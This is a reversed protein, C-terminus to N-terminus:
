VRHQGRRETRACRALFPLRTPADCAFPPPRISLSSAAGNPVESFIACGTHEVGPLDRMVDIGALVLAADLRADFPSAFGYRALEKSCGKGDIRLWWVRAAGDHLSDAYSAIAVGGGIAHPPLAHQAPAAGDDDGDAGAAEDDADDRRLGFEDKHDPDELPQYIEALLHVLPQRRTPPTAALGAWGIEDLRRNWARSRFDETVEDDREALNAFIGDAVFAPPREETRAVATPLLPM